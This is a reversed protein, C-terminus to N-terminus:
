IKGKTTVDYMKKNLDIKEAYEDSQIEMEKGDTTLNKSGYFPNTFSLQQPSREYNPRQGETAPTNRDAAFSANSLAESAPVTKQGSLPQNPLSEANPDIRLKFGRRQSFLSM